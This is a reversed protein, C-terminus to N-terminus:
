QFCKRLLLMQHTSGILSALEHVDKAFPLHKIVKMADIKRSGTPSITEGCM